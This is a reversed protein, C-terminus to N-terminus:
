VRNAESSALMEDMQGMIQDAVTSQEESAAAIQAIMGEVRRIDDVIRKFGEAAGRSVGEAHEARAQTDSTIRVAEGTDNRTQEIMQAIEHAAERSKRALSRVEDAVVAFGRGHDGARAAEIAANLALLNTQDTIGTITDVISGIQDSRGGLRTIVGSTAAVSEAVADLADLLDKMRAFGDAALGTVGSAVVSSESTSQAVERVALTMQQMASSVEAVNAALQEQKASQLGRARELEVDATIDMWCAMYCTLERADGPAFIPYSKTRFHVGGIAIDATHVSGAQHALTSLVRRVKNPDRHFQHISNGDARGVDAGSLAGNLADRHKVFVQRATENMYFVRNEPTTDCLMVVDNVNDIVRKLRDIEHSQAFITKNKNKVPFLM